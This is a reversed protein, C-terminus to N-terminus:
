ARKYFSILKNKLIEPSLSSQQWTASKQWMWDAHDLWWFRIMTIEPKVGDDVDSFKQFNVWLYYGSKDKKAETSEQAYSRNWYLSKQSSTKIEVSLNPDPIYVLDKDSVSADKKWLKPYKQSLKLPIIEHLLFWMIQPTPYIDKGISFGSKGIKTLFIDDWSEMVIQVLEIMDLPHHQVIQQTVQLWQDSPLGHYPSIIPM